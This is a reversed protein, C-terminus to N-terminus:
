RRASEGHQKYYMSAYGAHRARARNVTAGLVNAGGRRLERLVHELEAPNRRRADIVLIANGAHTAVSAGESVGLLPPTDIVVARGELEALVRPIVDHLIRAPHQEARGASLVSLQPLDTSQLLMEVSADIDRELDALGGDLRADFYEHLTPRRLDADVAVVDRGMAALAWALGATVTSKGEGPASSTVAVALDGDLAFEVNTRLRQFAEDLDLFRDDRFMTTALPPLSRRTPIEALVELGFRDQIEDSSQVRRRMISAGIAAFVAAIAGLVASGLLIPVRQPSAPSRPISAPALLSLKMQTSVPRAIALRAAANAALAATLPSTSEAGVHMIATGADFSADVTAKDGRASPPLAHQVLLAFADTRVQAVVTPLLFAVTDITAFSVDKPQVILTTEAKYRPTPLFAAAAGLGLIAAFVALSLLWFRRLAQGLDRLEV